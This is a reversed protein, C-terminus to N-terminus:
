IHILSLLMDAKPAKTVMQVTTPDVATVKTIGQVYSTYNSMDNKLIYEYMFAVDAATVPQGNDQWTANDRLTFTWTLGDASVSWDKALGTEKSPVLTAADVGVLFDYNTTFILYSPFVQAVFPNLNDPEGVYGVRLVVKGSSPSPSPSPSSALAQGLGWGLSCTLVLLVGAGALRLSTRRRAHTHRRDRVGM